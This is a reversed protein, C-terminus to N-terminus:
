GFLTKLSDFADCKPCKPPIVTIDRKSGCDPCTEPNKEAEKTRSPDPVERIEEEETEWGGKIDGIFIWDEADKYKEQLKESSLTTDGSQYPQGDETIMWGQEVLWKEAHDRRLSAFDSNERANEVVAIDIMALEVQDPAHKFRKTFRDILENRVLTAHNMSDMSTSSQDCANNVFEKFEQEPSKATPNFDCDNCKPITKNYSVSGCQPCYDKPQLPASIRGNVALNGIAAHTSNSPLKHAIALLEFEAEALPPNENHKKLWEKVDELVTRPSKAIFEQQFIRGADKNRLVLFVRTVGDTRDIFYNHKYINFVENTISQARDCALQAAERTYYLPINDEKAIKLAEENAKTVNFTMIGDKCDGGVFYLNEKDACKRCLAQKKSAKKPVRGVKVKGPKKAM